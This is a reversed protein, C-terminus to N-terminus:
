SAGMVRGESPDGSRDESGHPDPRQNPRNFLHRALRWDVLEAVLGDFTPGVDDPVSFTPRFHDGEIRFWRGPRERLEGAWAALPWRRWYDRWTAEDTGVPDPMARASRADAVLRPDGSVLRHATWALRTIGSGHRLTGDRLMAQLTVLKYAKNVPEAELGALVDGAEEWARREPEDLLDLDALLGFWGGHASRAVAPNHGARWAQVASPRRGEEATYSRCYEVLASRGGVRTLRALIEVAELDFTASCGEPLAFDGSRMAAVTAATSPRTGTAAGLLSRPKLLFSRHNGILDVVTLADKGESRRLGRGLQQLFVVPSETPRLMLVTTVHPVDLGENFIDVSFVVEVAGSGLQEIAQRRPDSTAGTHVAAAAVGADRFYSAMHDAHRTTVCFGLTPGGGHRRWESLAQEARARTALATTLADPDFRGGRWPIPTYDAVDRIGFYRFPALDGRGIGEVLNCEFVLNDGCLALLDAGDLREPTATLGLLFRPRFHDIIRRYSRAAAHHFEDVVVYDFAEPDFSGLHRTLTQVSVFVVRAEDTRETGTFMGLDADPQVRRFVDRSQSLIEERHAVFLIRRLSPRASDFAALWTKGLGTAMVVLGAAHGDARTRELADLAERQVPRPAPARAAPEPHVEPPPPRLPDWRARYERLLRHTLPRSRPDAWLREFGAVLPGVRDVGVSWEVGGAIGSRSLNSSGVFARAAAGTSSWFLYAKPHFSTTPDSFVRVALHGYSSDTLDLLRALADADTIALYDTTLIRVQAGRELADELRGALMALGSKMIFSVVLDIRDFTANILARRLELHLSRQQGDVLFPVGAPHEGTHGDEIGGM